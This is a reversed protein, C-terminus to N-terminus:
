QSAPPELIADVQNMELFPKLMSHLLLSRGVVNVVEVCWCCNRSSPINMGSRRNANRGMIPSLITAHQRQKRSSSNSRTDDDGDECTDQQQQQQECNQQLYDKAYAEDEKAIEQAKEQSKITGGMVICVQRIREDDLDMDGPVIVRDPTSESYMWPRQNYQEQLVARLSNHRRRLCDTHDGTYVLRELGRIDCTYERHKGRKKSIYKMEEKRIDIDRFATQKMARIEQGTYWIDHKDRGSYQSLPKIFRVEVVDMCTVFSNGEVQVCRSAFSVHREESIPTLVMTTFRQKHEEFV